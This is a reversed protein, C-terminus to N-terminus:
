GAIRPKGPAGLKGGLKVTVGNTQAGNVTVIVFGSTSNPPVTATISTQLDCVLKLNPRCNWQLDSQQRRTYSRFRYRQDCCPRCRIGSQAIVIRDLPQHTDGSHTGHQFLEAHHRLHVSLLLLHSRQYPEPSRLLRDSWPCRNPGGRSCWGDQESLYTGDTRYRLMVGKLMPRTPGVSLCAAAARHRQSVLLMTRRPRLQRAKRRSRSTQRFWAQAVRM